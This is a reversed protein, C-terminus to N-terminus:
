ARSALFELYSGIQIRGEEDTWQVLTDQYATIYRTAEKHAAQVAQAKQVIETM